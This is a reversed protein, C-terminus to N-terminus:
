FICLLNIITYLSSFIPTIFESMIVAIITLIVITYIQCGDKSKLLKDLSQMVTDLKSKSEDVENGFEDLMINQEKLEKDIDKALVHLRDVGKELQELNADQQRIMLSQQQHQDKIFRDNENHLSSRMKSQQDEQSAPAYGNRSSPAMPNSTSSLEYTGGKQAKMMKDTEIKREVSPAELGVKVDIIFLIIM